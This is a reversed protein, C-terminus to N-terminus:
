QNSHFAPYFAEILQRGQWKGEETAVALLMIASGESVPQSQVFHGSHDAGRQQQSRREQMRPGKGPTANKGASPSM